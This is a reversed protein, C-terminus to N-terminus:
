LEIQLVKAGQIAKSKMELLARNADLFPYIEIEPRIPIAAAIDLFEEVDRRSVNAVSQIQKEMWLHRGYDIRTLQEIDTTEKRIANVVLRGGPKLSELGAVIPFWAPTTDIIADALGPPSEDTDGAWDAGLQLAFERELPNRAFVYIRSAPYLHRATQMVLHASAGFGTLGLIQGNALGCLRLSRFGVAGACLLPAAEADNFVSPVTYVFSEPVTMFEAYGGPADRGCAVFDPCLNERGSSCWQCKGCASHIWAVGVRDGIEFRHCGSGCSDIKGIVQHGPTMPLSSPPTRGECEDLETHCVGCVTVKIRLEGAGPEPLPLESAVLPEPNDALAAIQHIQMAKM